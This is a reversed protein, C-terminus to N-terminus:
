GRHSRWRRCSRGRPFGQDAAGGRIGDRDARLRIGDVEVRPLPVSLTVNPSKTFASRQGVDLADRAARRSVGDGQCGRKRVGAADIEACAVVLKEECVDGVRAGDRVDLRNM